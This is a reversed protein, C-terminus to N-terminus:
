RSTWMCTCYTSFYLRGSTTKATVHSLLHCFSQGLFKLTGTMFSLHKLHKEMKRVRRNTQGPIYISSERSVHQHLQKWPGPHWCCLSPPFQLQNMVVLRAGVPFYTVNCTTFSCLSGRSLRLSEPHKRGSTNIVPTLKEQGIQRMQTM